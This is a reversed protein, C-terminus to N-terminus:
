SKQTLVSLLFVFAIREYNENPVNIHVTQRPAIERIFLAINAPVTEYKAPFSIGEPRPWSFWTARQKEWEAPFSFGHQRPTGTLVRLAPM